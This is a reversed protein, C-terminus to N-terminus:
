NPHNTGLQRPSGVRTKRTPFHIIPGTRIDDKGLLRPFAASHCEVPAPKAYWVVVHVCLVWLFICPQSPPGFLKESLLKLNIFCGGCGGSGSTFICVYVCRLPLLHCVHLCSQCLVHVPFVTCAFKCSVYFVFM